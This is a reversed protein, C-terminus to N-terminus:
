GIHHACAREDWPRESKGWMKYLIVTCCSLDSITSHMCMVLYESPLPYKTHYAQILKVMFARAAAAKPSCQPMM